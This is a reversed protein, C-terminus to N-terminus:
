QSLELNRFIKATSRVLATTNSRRHNGTSPMKNCSTVTLFSVAVSYPVGETTCLLVWGLRAM